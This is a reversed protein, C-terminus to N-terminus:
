ILVTGFVNGTFMNWVLAAALEHQGAEAPCFVSVAGCCDLLVITKDTHRRHKGAYPFVTHM